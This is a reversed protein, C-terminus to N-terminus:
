RLHGAKRELVGKGDLANIGTMAVVFFAESEDAHRVVV